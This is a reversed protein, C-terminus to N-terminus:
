TRVPPGLTVATWEGTASFADPPATAALAQLDFRFM